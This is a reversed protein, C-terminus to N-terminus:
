EIYGRKIYLNIDALTTKQGIFESFSNVLNNIINGILSLKIDPEKELKAKLSNLQQSEIGWDFVENDVVIYNIGELTVIEVKKM